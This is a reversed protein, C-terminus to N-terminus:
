FLGWVAWGQRAHATTFDEALSTGKADRVQQPRPHSNTLPTYTALATGCSSGLGSTSHSVLPRLTCHDVTSYITIEEQCRIQSSFLM